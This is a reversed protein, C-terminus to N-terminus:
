ILIYRRCSKKHLIPVCVSLPQFLQFVYGNILVFDGPTLLGGKVGFAAVVMAIGLGITQITVQGFGIFSSLAQFRLYRKQIDMEMSVFRDVEENEM